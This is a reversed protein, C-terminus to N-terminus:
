GYDPITPTSTDNSLYRMWVWDDIKDFIVMKEQDYEGEFDKVEFWKV